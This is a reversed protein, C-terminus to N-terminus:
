TRETALARHIRSDSERQPGPLEFWFRSGSGPASEVGTRGGMREVAKRVIALGIGNGPYKDPELREFVGFVKERYEAPIGIGNDEVWLRVRGERAEGRVTIRPGVGPAVFKIANSVLNTLVQELMVRHALVPPLSGAVIVEARRERIDSEMRILVESLLASMDVPQLRIEERTLRSYSLLDQVLSDMREAAHRIRGLHGRAEEDLKDGYESLLIESFGAQARLPARLDHAITYAFSELELLAERLERTRERVRDELAANLERVKAEGVKRRRAELRLEGLSREHAAVELTLRDRARAVARVMFAVLFASLAYSLSLVADGFSEFSFTYRPPVFYWHIGLIGLATAVVAPGFGGFWASFAVALIFFLFAGRNGLIPDIALRVAIGCLVAAVAAGYRTM